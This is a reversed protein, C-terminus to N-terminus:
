SSSCVTAFINKGFFIEEKSVSRVKGICFWWFCSINLTHGLLNSKLMRDVNFFYYTITYFVNTQNELNNCSIPFSVKDLTSKLLTQFMHNQM